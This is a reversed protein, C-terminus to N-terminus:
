RHCRQLLNPDAGQKTGERLLRRSHAHGRAIATRTLAIGVCASVM